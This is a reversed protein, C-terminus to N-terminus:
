VTERENTKRRKGRRVGQPHGRSVCVYNRGEVKSHHQPLTFYQSSTASSYSEKGRGKQFIATPPNSAAITLVM